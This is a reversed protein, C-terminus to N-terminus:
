TFVAAAASYLARRYRGTAFRIGSALALFPSVLTIRRARKVQCQSLLFWVQMMMTPLGQQASLPQSPSRNGEFADRQPSKAKRGIM